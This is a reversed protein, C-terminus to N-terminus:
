VKLAGPSMIQKLQERDEASIENKSLDMVVDLNVRAVETLAKCANSGLQNDALDLRHLNRRCDLVTCLEACGEDGISNSNLALTHLHPLLPILKTLNSVAERPIDNASLWLEELLPLHGLLRSVTVLGRSRLKMDELSLVKLRKVGRMAEELKELDEEGIKVKWLRFESIHTYFPLIRNLYSVGKSDLQMLKLSFVYEEKANAELVRVYYYLLKHPIFVREQEYYLGLRKVALEAAPSVFQVQAFTPDYQFSDM